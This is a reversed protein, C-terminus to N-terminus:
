SNWMMMVYGSKGSLINSFLPRLQFDNFESLKLPRQLIVAQTGTHPSPTFIHAISRHCTHSVIAAKKETHALLWCYSFLHIPQLAAISCYHLASHSSKTLTGFKLPSNWRSDILAHSPREHFDRRLLKLLHLSTLAM